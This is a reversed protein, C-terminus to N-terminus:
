GPARCCTLRTLVGVSYICLVKLHQFTKVCHSMLQQRMSLTYPRHQRWIFSFEVVTVIVNKGKLAIKEWFCDKWDLDEFWRWMLHKQAYYEHCFPSLDKTRKSKFHEPYMWTVNCHTWCVILSDSDVYCQVNLPCSTDLSDKRKQVQACVNWKHSENGDHKAWLLLMWLNLMSGLM